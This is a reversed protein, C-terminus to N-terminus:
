STAKFDELVKKVSVPLFHIQSLLMVFTHTGLFYFGRELEPKVIKMMFNAMRSQTMKRSPAASIVAKILCKAVIPSIQASGVIEASDVNDLIRKSPLRALNTYIMRQCSAGANCLGQLTANLQFKGWHVSFSIKETDAEALPISSYASVTDLTTWYKAGQM